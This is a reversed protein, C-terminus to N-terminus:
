SAGAKEYIRLQMKLNQLATSADVFPQEEKTTAAHLFREISIKMFDEFAWERGEHALFSKFVGSQDPKAAYSFKVRNVAIWRVTQGDIPATLAIDVNCIGHATAARFNVTTGHEQIDCSASDIDPIADPALGIYISLAHPGLDNWYWEPPRSAKGPRPTWHLAFSEIQELEQGTVEKYLYRIPQVAAAFQMNVAFVANSAEVLEVLEEAEAIIEVAPKRPDWVLPKECLVHCGSRVAQAAHKVHWEPPTCISVIDPRSESFFQDLDSYTKGQFPFIERLADAAARCTDPSTGAICKVDCGAFHFWKAHHKGIGRAGIIGVAPKNM